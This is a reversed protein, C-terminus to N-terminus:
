GIYMGTIVKTEFVHSISLFFSVNVNQIFSRVSRRRGITVSGRCGTKWSPGLSFEEFRIHDVLNTAPIKIKSRYGESVWTVSDISAHHTLHHISENPASVAPNLPDLKVPIRRLM